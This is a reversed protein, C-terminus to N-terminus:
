IWGNSVFTSKKYTSLITSIELIQNKELLKTTPISLGLKQGYRSKYNPFVVSLLRASSFLRKREELVFLVDRREGFSHSKRSRVGFTRTALSKLRSYFEDSSVRNSSTRDTTTTTRHRFLPHDMGIMMTEIVSIYSDQLNTRRFMTAAWAHCSEGASGASYLSNSHNRVEPWFLFDRVM